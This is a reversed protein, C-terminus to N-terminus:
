RKSVQICYWAMSIPHLFCMVAGAWFSCLCFGPTASLFDILESEKTYYFFYRCRADIGFTNYTKLACNQIVKAKDM